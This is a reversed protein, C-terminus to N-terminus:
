FGRELAGGLAIGYVRQIVGQYERRGQFFPQPAFEIQTSDPAVRLATESILAPSQDQARLM